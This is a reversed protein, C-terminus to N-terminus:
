AREPSRVSPRESQPPESRGMARRTSELTAAIGAPLPRHSRRDLDTWVRSRLRLDRGQVSALPSSALVVNPRRRFVTRCAGLIAGITVSRGSAFIKTTVGGPEADARALADAVMEGADSVYLYDRLTDMSVYISVPRGTLYGRCLHSILGQPKALNQGPGYLNAFRGIVATAGTERAFETVVSEAALKAHGYLGLPATHSYESHPAGPAAAYVGGASSSHFVTGQEASGGAAHALGALVDRLMANEVAFAQETTGNVGAGACWAVRWRGGGATSVFRHADDLLVARAQAPDDWPVVSTTVPVDRRHLERGVWSGLLGGSGVVWTPTPM